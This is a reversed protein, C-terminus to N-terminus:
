TIANEVKMLDQTSTPGRPLSKISRLDIRRTALLRDGKSRVREADIEGEARQRTLIGLRMSDLERDGVLDGDLYTGLDSEGVHTM